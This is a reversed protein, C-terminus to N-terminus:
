QDMRSKKDLARAIADKALDALKNARTEEDGESADSLGIPELLELSCKGPRVSLTSPPMADFTGRIVVPVIPVGCQIANFFAGLRFKGLDGTKTRTGEPFIFVSGGSELAAKINTRISQNREHSDKGRYVKIHKEKELIAGLRPIRFLGEKALIRLDGEFFACIMLADLASSHNAVYICPGMKQIDEPTPGSIEIQMTDLLQRTYKARIAQSQGEPAQAAESLYIRALKFFTYANKIISSM